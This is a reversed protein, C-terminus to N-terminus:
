LLLNQLKKLPWLTCNHLACIDYLSQLCALGIFIPFLMIKTGCFICFIRFGDFYDVGPETTGKAISQKTVRGEEGLFSFFFSDCTKPIGEEFKPQYSKVNRVFGCDITHSTDLTLTNYGLLCVSWRELKRRTLSWHDHDCDTKNEREDIGDQCYHIKIKTIAIM